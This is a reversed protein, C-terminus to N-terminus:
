FHTIGMLNDTNSKSHTQFHHQGDTLLYFSATNLGLALLNLPQKLIGYVNTAAMSNTGRDILRNPTLSKQCSSSHICIFEKPLM